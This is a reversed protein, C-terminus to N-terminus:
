WRAATPTLGLWEAWKARVQRHSFGVVLWVGQITGRCRGSRETPRNADGSGETPAQGSSRATPGASSRQSHHDCRGTGSAGRKYVCIAKSPGNTRDRCLCYDTWNMSGVAFTFLLGASLAAYQDPKAFDSAHATAISYLPVFAGFLFVGAYVIRHDSRTALCLLCGFLSAGLTAAMLISRRNLKDSLWGFPVQLIAGGGIGAGM